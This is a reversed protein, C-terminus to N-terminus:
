NEEQQGCISIYFEWSRLTMANAQVSDHKGSHHCHVLDRLSYALGLSIKEKTLITTM